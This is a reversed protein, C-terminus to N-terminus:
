LLQIEKILLQIKGEGAYEDLRLQYCVRVEDGKVFEPYEGPEFANFWIGRYTSKGMFLTVSLHEQDRGRQVFHDVIFVNEFCPAEFERGFPQLHQLECFGQYSLQSETLAGDVWLGPQPLINQQRMAQACQAEFLVRFKDLNQKYLKLGAAGKHGGYSVLIDPELTNIEHLIKHVPIENVTRASAVLLPDSQDINAAPEMKQKEAVCALSCVIAPVGFREVLRSAVIGQVGAHFCDDFIVLSHPYTTLYNQAQQCAQSLMTKETQRRSKNEEDLQQLAKDASDKDEALIYRLALYPEAMRSRANIRPGIQYGLDEVCFSYDPQNSLLTKMAQWCPRTSQNMIRLGALVVARNVASALSVADAVTGLAVFDLLVSLKPSDSALKGKTIFTQRLLSMLLWSVMCGAITKDPYACDARQPNIVAFASQPIGGAPIAHHDTVIVHINKESLLAIRAEDSSGCDATIVVDPLPNYRLIRRVLNDSLGYGDKIRHGIWSQLNGGSCQFFDQLAHLLIAHSTIGDVDYDTVIAITQEKQLAEYLRQAAKQADALLRPHPIHRLAPQLVPELLTSATALRNAIVKAQLPTYGTALAQQYLRQNGTLPKIINRM